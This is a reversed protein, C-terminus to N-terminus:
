SGKADNAELALAERIRAALERANYASEPADYLNAYQALRELLAASKLTVVLAGLRANRAIRRYKAVKRDMGAQWAAQRETAKRAIYEPDHQWCYWKGDRQVTANRHCKYVRGSVDRYAGWIKGSCDHKTTM